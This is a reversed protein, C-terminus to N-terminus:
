GAAEAYTGKLKEQRVQAPTKYGHRQLIWQQNYVQRFEWLAQRLEEITAFTRVWLLNEKLLRIFREACGNGEPERIFSPSAEIGLFTLEAQFDDAMYAPGHDHRVKLGQAKQAAYGGFYERVGQRIPELAEFRNGQKAAHLGICEFTCHDVSVFIFATGEQTTVTTTADTGWMQDPQETRITGDHARPGHPHGKKHPAQLGHEKMLRRVREPSTRIGEFRLRAWVKRYGEGHFPSAELLRRIHEVLAEDTCPGQPGRKPSVPAVPAESRDRARWAYVTSRPFRCVRCVRQLGYRKQTSISWAASM